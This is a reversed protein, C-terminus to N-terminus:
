PTQAAPHWNKWPGDPVEYDEIFKWDVLNNGNMGLYDRIAPSVDIGANKNANPQPDHGKFVYLWDDTTFPGVDKWRAYCIRGKRHIAVWRGHCVSTGPGRYSKWFWPVVENAEPRHIGGPAVDNYPLAIYFPTQNPLFGAPLYGNRNSPDDYGGFSREWNPDWASANNPTPNRPTPKEGVWFVTATIGRRWPSAEITWAEPVEEIVKAKSATQFPDTLIGFLERRTDLFANHRAKLREALPSAAAM